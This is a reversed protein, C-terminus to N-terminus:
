LLVYSVDGYALDGTYVSFTPLTTGGGGAGVFYVSAVANLGTLKLNRKLGNAYPATLVVTNGKTEVTAASVDPQVATVDAGSGCHYHNLTAKTGRADFTWWDCGAVLSVGYNTAADPAGALTLVARVANGPVSSVTVGVVDQSGVAWDGKADKIAATTGAGAPAALLLAALTAIVAPRRM